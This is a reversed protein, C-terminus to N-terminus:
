KNKRARQLAQRALHDAGKNHRQSRWDITIYSFYEELEYIAQLYPQFDKNKTTGQHLLDVATKSDSHLFVMQDTLNHDILWQMAQLIAEFEAQHNDWLGELPRAIQEHITQGSILIGIGAPGPNGKVAADTNVNLM